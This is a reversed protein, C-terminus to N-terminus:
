EADSETLALFEDRTVVQRSVSANVSAISQDIYARFEPDALAQQAGAWTRDLAAQLAREEGNLDEHRMAM